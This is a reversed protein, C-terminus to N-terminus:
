CPTVGAGAVSAVGSEARVGRAISAKLTALAEGLPALAFDDLDIDDEDDLVEDSSSRCFGKDEDTLLAYREAGFRIRSAEWVARQSEFSSRIGEWGFIIQLEAGAVEFRCISLLFGVSERQPPSLECDNIARQVELPAKAIVSEQEDRYRASEAAADIARRAAAIYGDASPQDTKLAQVAAGFLRSPSRAGERTLMDYAVAAVTAASAVKKGDWFTIQPNSEMTRKLVEVVAKEFPLNHNWHERTAPHGAFAMRVEDVGFLDAMIPVSDTDTKSVGELPLRNHTGSAIGKATDFKNSKKPEDVRKPEESRTVRKVPTASRRTLPQGWITPKTLTACADRHLEVLPLLDFYRTAGEMWSTVYGKEILSVRARDLTSASIGFHEELYENGPFVTWDGRACDEDYLHASLASLLAASRANLDRRTLAFQGLNLRLSLRSFRTTPGYIM